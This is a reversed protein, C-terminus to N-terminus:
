FWTRFPINITGYNHPYDESTAQQDTHPEAVLFKEHCRLIKGERNPDTTTENWYTCKKMVDLTAANKSSYAYWKDGMFYYWTGVGTKTNWSSNVTLVGKSNAGKSKLEEYINFGDLVRM